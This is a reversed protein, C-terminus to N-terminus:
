LRRYLAEPIPDVRNTMVVGLLRAGGASLADAAHRAADRRTAQEDLLLIVGDVMPALVGREAASTATPGIVLFDFRAYMARLWRRPKDIGGTIEGGGAGAWVGAALRRFAATSRGPATVTEVLCVTRGPQTVALLAAVQQVIREERTAGDVACFLISRAGAGAPESLFVRAVLTALQERVAPPLGDLEAASERPTGITVGEAGDAEAFEWPDEDAVADSEVVGELFPPGDPEGPWGGAGSAAARQRARSVRTM